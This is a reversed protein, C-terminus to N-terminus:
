GELGRLMEILGVAFALGGGSPNAGAHEIPTVLYGYPRRYYADTTRMVATFMARAIERSPGLAHTHCLAIGNLLNMPLGRVDGNEVDVNPAHAYSAVAGWAGGDYQQGKLQARVAMDLLASLTDRREPQLELLGIAVEWAREQDPSAGRGHRHVRYWLPAYFDLGSVALRGLMPDDPWARWMAFSCAGLNGYFDNFGPDIGEFSGTWAHAYEARALARRAVGHLREDGVLGGLRALETAVDLRRLPPVANSPEGDSPRYIAAVEGTPLVGRELIGDAVRQAADLCRARLPRPGSEALDLLFRLTRAIEIPEDDLAVDRIPDWRRPLGTDPHLGLAILDDVFAALAATWEDRPSVAVARALQEYLPHVGAPSSRLPEGTVVDFTGAVFRTPRPGVDDLARALWRDLIPALLDGVEARLAAESPFPLAVAAQLDRWEAAGSLALTLRPVLPRGLRAELEAGTVAFAGPGPALEVRGRADEVALVADGDCAGRVVLGAALPAYVALPQRASGRASTVLRATGGDRAVRVDDAAIWWAIRLSDDGLEPAAFDGNELLSAALTEEADQAPAGLALFALLALPM